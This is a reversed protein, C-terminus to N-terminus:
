LTENIVSIDEYDYLKDLKLEQLKNWCMDKIKKVTDDDKMDTMDYGILGYECNSSYVSIFDYDTSYDSLASIDKIKLLKLIEDHEEYDIGIGVICFSSSSSNSVFGQRIKM